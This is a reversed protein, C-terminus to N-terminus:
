RAAPQGQRYWELTRALGQRVTWRPEYRLAQRARILSAQSHRVDGERAPVHRPPPAEGVAEGIWRALRSISTRDGAAVNFCQGAVEAAPAGAALLNAAVTDAVFTFDRSQEGDGHIVAPEGAIAAAFFLPVVAAYPGSPDQRPGYVNFYRLGVTEMGFSRAFVRGLEECMRKSAAYPSLTDGEEGERKPLRSSDGYVSSSSAYVVRRAGADRAAAMVNATGAVNVAFTTAPDRISRPVSGLAAQHFVVAAGACAARCADLDRVDGIQLEIRGDLHALNDRRGTSLDDLVRVRAGAEVLADVLHSGIFGAGGTVLVTQRSLDPLPM